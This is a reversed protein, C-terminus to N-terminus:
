LLVELYTRVQKSVGIKEAYGMLKNIDKGKLKVYRKYADTVMAIDMKARLKVIDCLTREINYCSVKHGYSTEVQESGLQHLENAAYYIRMNQKRLHTANYNMPVTGIYYLPDRDTLDHLFLATDHSFIVKPSRLQITLMADEFVEPLIYVGHRVKELKGNKVYSNLTPKSVDLKELDATTIYGNNQNSFNEILNWKNM